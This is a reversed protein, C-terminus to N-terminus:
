ICFGFCVYNSTSSSYAKVSGDNTVAHFSTNSAASRTSWVTVGNDKDYRIKVYNYPMVDVYKPGTQEYTTNSFIENASPIWLKDATMQDHSVSSEGPVVYDSYKRVEKISTQLESPFLPLITDNLWSRMESHEWGGNAGTGQAGSQNAPNMRHEEKYLKRYMLWTTAATTTGDSALVDADKAVMQMYYTTGDIVISKTDGVAYKSDYTGNGVATIIDNWSDTITSFDTAPYSEIPLIPFFSAYSSQKYRSIFDKPVYIAGEGWELPTVSLAGQTVSSLGGYRLILHKIKKSTYFAYNKLQKGLIDVVELNDCNSFGHENITTCAPLVVNILNKHQDLGYTGIKTIGDDEFTTLTDAVLADLCAQEGMTERTNAM